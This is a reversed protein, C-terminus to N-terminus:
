WVKTSGSRIDLHVLNKNDNKYTLYGIGGFLGSKKALNAILANDIQKWARTSNEQFVGDMALNKIHQSRLSGGVDENHKECRSGSSVLHRVKCNFKRELILIFAQVSVLLKPDLEAGCGCQCDGEKESYNMLEICKKM